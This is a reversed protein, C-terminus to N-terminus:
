RFHTFLFSLSYQFKKKFLRNGINKSQGERDKPPIKTHYASTKSGLFWKQRYKLGGQMNKLKKIKKENGLEEKKNM